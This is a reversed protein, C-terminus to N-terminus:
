SFLSLHFQKVDVEKWSSKKKDKRSQMESGKIETYTNVITTKTSKLQHIQLNSHKLNGEQKTLDAKCSRM